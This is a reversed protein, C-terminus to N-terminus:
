KIAKVVFVDDIKNEDGKQMLYLGEGELTIYVEGYNGMHYHGKTKTFEKGLMQPPIVTIDYRLGDRKELVRYMYYLELNPATKAWEKDYLIGRMDNLYRIDPKKDELNKEIIAIEM